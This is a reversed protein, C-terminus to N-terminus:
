KGLGNREDQFQCYVLYRNLFLYFFYTLVKLLQIAKCKCLSSRRDTVQVNLLNIVFYHAPRKVYSVDILM